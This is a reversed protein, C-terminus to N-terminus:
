LLFVMGTVGLVNRSPLIVCLVNWVGLINSFVLALVWNWLFVLVPLPFMYRLSFFIPAAWWHLFTWDVAWSLCICFFLVGQQSLKCVSISYTSAIELALLCYTVRRMQFELLSLDRRAKRGLLLFLLLSHLFWGTGLLMISPSASIPSESILSGLVLLFLKWPIDWNSVICLRM